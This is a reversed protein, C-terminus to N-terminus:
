EGKQEVTYKFQEQDKNWNSGYVTTGYLNIFGIIKNIDAMTGSVQLNVLEM